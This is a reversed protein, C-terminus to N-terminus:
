KDSAPRELMPLPYFPGLYQRQWWQGSAARNEPSAFRYLYVSSRLFRPPGDAFPSSM